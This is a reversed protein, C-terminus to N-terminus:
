GCAAHGRAARQRILEAPVPAKELVLEALENATSSCSNSCSAAGCSPRTRCTPPSRSADVVEAGQKEQDFTLAAEDDVLDIVGRFADPM